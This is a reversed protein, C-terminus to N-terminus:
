KLVEGLLVHKRELIKECLVKSDFKEKVFQAADEVKNIWLSVALVFDRSGKRM